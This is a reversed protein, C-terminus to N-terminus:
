AAAHSSQRDQQPRQVPLIPVIELDDQHQVAVDVPGPLRSLAEACGEAISQADDLERLVPATHRRQIRPEFLRLPVHEDAAIIVELGRGTIHVRM